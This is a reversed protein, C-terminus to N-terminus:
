VDNLINELALLSQLNHAPYFEDISPMAESMGRAIPEYGKMAKLPNLWITKKSRRKIKQLERGLLEPAGTDLGDSLIIVFPLGNLMRKGYQENFQRLCDGIKTGGSWNDAKQSISSLVAELYNHQLAKSIRILSTSFVFAEAQRFNERLACVFRLLYFSYKDMSGSVDLLVILRHKKKKQSRYYLEMPEGGYGISRRITRRLNLPGQQRSEKMRRRLRLAMEKFLKAAIEDLLRSDMEQIKSFDTKQLREADNAGSVNKAEASEDDTKGRGMLVLSRNTKKEVTGQLITKNKNERLDVPNTDWYLSFLQEYLQREEPNTCFIIKLAHKFNKRGTLLQANAAQLAFETEEVGINLGHNRVFQSFAVISETITSTQFAQLKM